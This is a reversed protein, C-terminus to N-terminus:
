YIKHDWKSGYKIGPSEIKVRIDLRDQMRINITDYVNFNNKYDVYDPIGDRHKDIIWFASIDLINKIQQPTLLISNALETYNKEKCYTHLRNIYAIMDANSITNNRLVLDASYFSPSAVKILLSTGVGLAVSIGLPLWRKLLFVTAILLGRGFAKSWRNFTRGMRRFLELLDIEDDRVNKNTANESM